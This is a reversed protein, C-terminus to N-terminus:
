RRVPPNGGFFAPFEHHMVQLIAIYGRLPHGQWQLPPRGHGGALPRGMCAITRSCQSPTVAVDDLDALSGAKTNALHLPHKAM